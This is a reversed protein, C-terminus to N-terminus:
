LRDRGFRDSHKAYSALDAFPLDGSRRGQRHAAGLRRGGAALRRLVQVRGNETWISSMDRPPMPTSDTLSIADAWACCRCRRISRAPFITGPPSCGVSRPRRGPWAAWRSDKTTAPVDKLAPWKTRPARRHRGSVQGVAERRRLPRPTLRRDPLGASRMTHGAAWAQLADRLAFPLVLRCPTPCATAIRRLHSLAAHDSRRQRSLGRAPTGGRRAQVRRDALQLSEGCGAARDLDHRRLRQERRSRQLRHDRLARAHRRDPGSLEMRGNRVEARLDEIRCEPESTTTAPWGSFMPHSALRLADALTLFSGRGEGRREEGYTRNGTGMLLHRPGARRRREKDHPLGLSHGLEHAAGGMFITNYRGVSIHGYQQDDLM